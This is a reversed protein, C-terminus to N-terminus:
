QPRVEVAELQKRFLELARIKMDRSPSRRSARPNVQSASAGVRDRDPVDVVGVMSGVSGDHGGGSQVCAGRAVVRLLM